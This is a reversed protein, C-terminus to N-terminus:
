WLNKLTWERLEKGQLKTPDIDTILVETYKGNVYRFNKGSADTHIGCSLLEEYTPPTTKEQLTVKETPEPPKPTEGLNKEEIEKDKRKYEKTTTVRKNTKENKNTLRNTIRNTLPTQYIDYNVVTILTFKNTSKITIENTSKEDKTQQYFTGNKAMEQQQVYDFTRNTLQKNTTALKSLATRINQTSVGLSLALAQNSTVLQGRKVLIGCWKRDEWNANILLHIFLRSATSDKYWRWNQLRKHLLIYGESM